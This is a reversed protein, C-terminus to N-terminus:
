SFEYAFFFRFNENVLDVIHAPINHQVFVHAM